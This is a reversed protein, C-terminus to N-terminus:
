LCVQWAIHAPLHKQLMCVLLPWKQRDGVTLPNGVGGTWGGVTSHYVIPCQAVAVFDPDNLTLPQGVSSGFGDVGIVGWGGVTNHVYGQFPTPGIGRVCVGTSSATLTLFECQLATRLLAQLQPLTIIGSAQRASCVQAQRGPVDTPYSQFACDGPLGYEIEWEPLLEVAGCALSERFLDCIRLEFDSLLKGFSRHLAARVTTFSRCWIDGHPELALATEAFDEATHGCLPADAPQPGPDCAPAQVQTCEINAVSM